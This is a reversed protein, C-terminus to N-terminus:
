KFGRLKVGKMLQERFIIFAIFVPLSEIFGMAMLAAWVSVPQYGEGMDAQPHAVMQHTAWYMMVSLPAKRSEVGMVIYPWLFANWVSSFAFYSTVAFIPKSLPLIIRGLIGLESAGDLRAAHIIEDPITDFYGKFLLIIFASAMNLFIVGWYTNVFSTHPFVTNTFPIRPINRTWFPFYKLILYTPITILNAPVFMTAVIYLFLIRNLTANRILKSLAYAALACVPIQIALSVTTIIISNKIYIITPYQATRDLGKIIYKYVYFNPNKPFLTPPFTFIEETTKLSSTFMWYVPWLHLGVGLWLFATIGWIALRVKFKNRGVKPILM